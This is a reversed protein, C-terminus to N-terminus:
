RYRCCLCVCVSPYPKLMEIFRSKNVPTLPENGTCNQGNGTFGPKCTCTYNQKTSHCIADKHCPFPFPPNCMDSVCLNPFFYMFILLTQIIYHKKTKKFSLIMFASHVMSLVSTDRNEWLSLMILVNAVPSGAPSPHQSASSGKSVLNDEVCTQLIGVSSGM